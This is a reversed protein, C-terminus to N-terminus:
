SWQENEGDYDFQSNWIRDHGHYHGSLTSVSCADQEGRRAWFRGQITSVCDTPYFFLNTTVRKQIGKVFDISDDDRVDLGIVMVKDM